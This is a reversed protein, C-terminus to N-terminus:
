RGDCVQFDTKTFFKDHLRYKKARFHDPYPETGCLVQWLPDELHRWYSTSGSYVSPRNLRAVDVKGNGGNQTSWPDNLGDALKPINPGAKSRLVISVKIFLSLIAM